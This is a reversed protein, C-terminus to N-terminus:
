YLLEEADGYGADYGVDQGRDYGKDYGDNWIPALLTFLKGVDDIGCHSRLIDITKAVDPDRTDFRQMVKGTIDEM